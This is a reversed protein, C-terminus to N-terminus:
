QKDFYKKGSDPCFYSRIVGAKSLFVIENTSELYYVHDGDEEELKHLSDPNNIVASAGAEYSEMDAYGMDKGHKDYHEKLLKNNKFKYSIEESVAQNSASTDSKAETDESVSAKESTSTEISVIPRDNEFNRREPKNATIAFYSIIICVLAFVRFLWDGKSNHKRPNSM